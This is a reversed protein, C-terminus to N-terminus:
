SVRGHVLDLAVSRWWGARTDAGHNFLFLFSFFLGGSVGFHSPDTDDTMNGGLAYATFGSTRGFRWLAM